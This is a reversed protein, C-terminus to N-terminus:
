GAWSEALHASLKHSFVACIRDDDVRKSAPVPYAKHGGRQLVSSLRSIIQDLRANIIDYCHSRYSVAVAREHRRLLQNVIPHFLAIGISISRPYETIEIGGQELITNRALTLDAVGFYDAGWTVASDHLQKELDIREERLSGTIIM